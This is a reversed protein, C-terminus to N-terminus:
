KKRWSPTKKNFFCDIGEQGEASEWTDALLNATYKVCTDTDSSHQDVYFLLKKTAAIAGPGCQLVYNIEEEVAADLADDAVVEDLLGLEKAKHATLPRANLWSRRANSRGMKRVVFTSINAPTLGLRVETLAFKASEIGITIDCVSMMGTGGGYAQGNVRGILPKSLEDLSRLMTALKASDAVREERSMNLTGEMWKLDGGACFSDGEGTLVICRVRTDEDLQRAVETVERILCANMANHQEPRALLLTAVGRDDIAVKITEFAM